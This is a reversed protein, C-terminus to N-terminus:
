SAAATHAGDAPTPEGHVRARPPPTTNDSLLASTYGGRGAAPRGRFAARAGGALRESPSAQASHAPPQLAAASPPRPYRLPPVPRLACGDCDPSQSCLRQLFAAGRPPPSLCRSLSPPANQWIFFPIEPRSAPRSRTAPEQNPSDPRPGPADPVALGRLALGRLVGCARRATPPAVRRLGAPSHPANILVFPEGRARARARAGGAPPPGAAPSTPDVGGQGSGGATNRSLSSDAGSRASRASRAALPRGPKRVRRGAKARGRGSM